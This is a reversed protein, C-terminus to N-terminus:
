GSCVVLSMSRHFKCLVDSEAAVGTSVPKLYATRRGWSKPPDQRSAANCLLTSIITKGVDTNAGYIQYIRLQERLLVGVPATPSKATENHASDFTYSPPFEDRSAM